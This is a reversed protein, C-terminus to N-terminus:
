RKQELSIITLEPPCLFRIPLGRTGVGRNVYLWSDAFRFLGQNYRRGLTTNIYLPGLIPLRVQGGHTHGSLALDVKMGSVESIIDPSHALLITVADEPAGELAIQLQGQNVGFDLWGLPDDAPAASEFDEAWLVAGDLAAIQLDDWYKWGPGVSWFGPVGQRDFPSPQGERTGVDIPWGVPEPGDQPWLRAQLRALEGQRQYRVRFRYWLGPQPELGAGATGAMVEVGKSAVQWEPAERHARLRQYHDEGWPYRSDLVLGIGGAADTYSLRGTFEYGEAPWGPGAVYHTFANGTCPPAAVVRNGEREVVVHDASFGEPLHAFDVGALVLTSGGIDLSVRENILLTAESSAMQRILLDSHGGYRSIDTNGRTIWTGYRPTPLGRLFEGVEAAREAWLNYAAVHEILDGTIVILDPDLRHLEDQVRRTLRNAGVIHTDSIQAIRLGALAPPLGEIAVAVEQVQLRYPEVWFADVVVALALLALAALGLHIRKNLRNRPM